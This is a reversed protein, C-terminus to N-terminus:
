DGNKVATRPQSYAEMGSGVGLSGTNSSYSLLLGDADFNLITTANETDMGGVFAGVVPIFMEPRAQASYYTYILTRHGDSSVATQTPKGLVRQAEDITTEGKAFHSLKDPNVKVGGSACSSLLLAFCLFTLLKKM